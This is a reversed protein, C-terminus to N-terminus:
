EVRIDFLDTTHRGIEKFDVELSFKDFGCFGPDPTYTVAFGTTPKPDCGSPQGTFRDHTPITASTLHHSVRGHQPKISLTAVAFASNCTTRIFPSYTFM